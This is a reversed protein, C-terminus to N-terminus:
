VALRLLVGLFSLVEFMGTRRGVEALRVVPAANGTPRNGVSITTSTADSDYYGNSTWTYNRGGARMTTNVVFPTSAFYNDTDSGVLTVVRRLDQTYTGNDSWTGLDVQKEVM